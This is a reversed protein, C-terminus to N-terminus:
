QPPTRETLFVVKTRPSIAEPRDSLDHSSFLLKLIKALQMVRLTGEGRQFETNKAIFSPYVERSM